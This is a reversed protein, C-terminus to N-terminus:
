GNKVDVRLDKVRIKASMLDRLLSKFLQELADKRKEEADIRRDIGSLISAIQQQEALSPLPILFNNLVNKSLRKRGTTGEMKSILKDRVDSIKLYSYLHFSMVQNNKPHLPIVETTAIAYDKPINDIIAQKGNEFCPTIKSVILDGKLVFVGSPIKSYEKIEYTAKKDSDSINEMAIFVVKDKESIKLDRPKKSVEFLESVKKVEWEKPVKGIDTEKLKVKDRDEFSVAGYTFLHKMMAKKLERLSNITWETKEKAEQSTSLVYAIKRQEPLAPLPVLIKEIKSKNLTNGKVARDMYKSYNVTPLYYFLFTKDLDDKPYISIIAENHAADIGLFATRGITLKFSMLLTGKPSLKNKLLKKLAEESIKEKTNNIIKHERMDAISVWPVTGNVWFRKEKRAPTRGLNYNIIAGLRVVRWDKPLLGLETEKYEEKSKIQLKTKM